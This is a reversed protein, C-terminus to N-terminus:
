DGSGEPSQAMGAARKFKFWVVGLGVLLLCVGAAFPTQPSFNYWLQAGLWPAGFSIVGISSRFLGFAVGRMQEPVTKSVLSDYAPWLMGHGLGTLVMAGAFGTFTRVSILVVTGAALLVFGILIAVREGLHDSIWGSPLSTAMMAVGLISSTWGIQETNLGGVLNLYLPQLDGTLQFSIDSVGDTILLWLILGGGLVLAAMSRLDALFKRGTLQMASRDKHDPYRFMMWVRLLTASTYVFSAALLMPRFGFRHSIIGAIPPGIVVVLMFIGDFVGFVRGRTEESSQEAVFAGYSPAVLASSVYELCIAPLAWEWSPALILGFYGLTAVVSGIAVARLRGLTDSLWGGVLQLVLMVISALSFLTGIQRITAGLERLYIPMLSYYMEGAINALIMALLFWRLAVPIPPFKKM